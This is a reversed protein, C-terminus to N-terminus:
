GGFLERHTVGQSPESPGGLVTGPTSQGEVPTEFTDRGLVGRRAVPYRSLDGSSRTVPRRDM